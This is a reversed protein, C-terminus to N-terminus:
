QREVSTVHYEGPALALLATLVDAGIGGDGTTKITAAPAPKPWSRETMGDPFADRHLVILREHKPSAMNQEENRLFERLGDITDYGLEVALEADRRFWRATARLERVMQHSAKAREAPSLSLPAEYSPASGGLAFLDLGVRQEWYEVLSKLAARKEPSMSTVGNEINWLYGSDPSVGIMDQITEVRLFGKLYAIWRIVQPDPTFKKNTTM